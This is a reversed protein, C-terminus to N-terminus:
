DYSWEHIRRAYGYEDKNIFTDIICEKNNMEANKQLYELHGREVFVEKVLDDGFMARMAILAFVNREYVRHNVRILKGDAIGAAIETNATQEYYDHRENILVSVPEFPDFQYEHADLAEYFATTFDWLQTQTMFPIDNMVEEIRKGNVLMGLYWSQM